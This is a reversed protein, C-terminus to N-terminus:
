RPYKKYYEEEVTKLSEMVNGIAYRFGVDKKELFSDYNLGQDALLKGPTAGKELM